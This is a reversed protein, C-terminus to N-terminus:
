EMSSVLSLSAMEATDVRSAVPRRLGSIRRQVRCAAARACMCVPGASAQAHACGLHPLAASTSVETGALQSRLAPQVGASREISNTLSRHDPSRECGRRGRPSTSLCFM